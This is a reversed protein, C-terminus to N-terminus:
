TTKHSLTVIRYKLVKEYILVVRARLKIEEILEFGLRELYKQMPINQNYTIAWVSKAKSKEFNNLVANLCVMIARRGILTGKYENRLALAGLQYEPDLLNKYKRAESMADLIDKWSLKFTILKCLAILYGLTKKPNKKFFSPYSM